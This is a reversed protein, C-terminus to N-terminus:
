LYKNLFSNFYQSFCILHMTYIENRMNSVQNRFIFTELFQHIIKIWHMGQVLLKFKIM